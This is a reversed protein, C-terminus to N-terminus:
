SPEKSAEWSQRIRRWDEGWVRVIIVCAIATLGQILAIITFCWGPGVADTLPQLAALGGPALTCRLINLSAQATSPRAPHLDIILTGCANYVVIM